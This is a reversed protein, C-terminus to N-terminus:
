EQLRFYKPEATLENTYPSSAGPINTYSGIVAPSSQLTLGTNTWALVVSNGLLQISLPMPLLRGTAFYNDFTAYGHTQNTAFVMFGAVGASYTSDVATVEALPQIVSSHLDFVKGTLTQGVGNFTFRYSNTPNIFPPAVLSVAASALITRTEDSVRSLVLLGSTDYGFFYGDTTGRGIQGCRAMMGFSQGLGSDWAVVDFAISFDSYVANTRFSGGLAPGYLGPNPSATPLIGYAGNGLIFTTPAGFPTLPAYHTWGSDNNDDFDDFEAQAAEAVLFIVCICLRLSSCSRNGLLLGVWKSGKETSFGRETRMTHIHWAVASSAFFVSGKLGAVHGQVMPRSDSAAAESNHRFGRRWGNGTM